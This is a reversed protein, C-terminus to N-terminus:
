EFCIDSESGIKRFVVIWPLRGVPYPQFRGHRGSPFSLGRLNSKHRGGFCPRNKNIGAPYIGNTMRGLPLRSIRFAFFNGVKEEGGPLRKAEGTM